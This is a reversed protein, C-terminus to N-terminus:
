HQCGFPEKMAQKEAVYNLFGALFAIKENSTKKDKLVKKGRRDIERWDETTLLGIDLAENHDLEITFYGKEIM